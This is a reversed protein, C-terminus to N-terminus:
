ATEKARQNRLKRATGRGKPQAIKPFYIDPGTEIELPFPEKTFGEWIEKLKTPNVSIAQAFRMSGLEHYCEILAQEVDVYDNGKRHSMIVGEPKAGNKLHELLAESIHWEKKFLDSLRKYAIYFEALRQPDKKIQEIRYVLDPEAGAVTLAKSSSDLWVKCTGRKACWGCYDNVQPEEEERHRYRVILQHVRDAADSYEVDYEVAKRLDFYLVLFVCRDRKQEELISKAYGAFQASYDYQDGSKADIVWLEKVTVGWADCTGGTVKNGDADTIEVEYEVYHVTIGRADIEAIAWAVCERSERDEISEITREGALVAALLEHLDIGRNAAEGSDGPKDEFKICLELKPFLHPRFTSQDILAGKVSKRPM